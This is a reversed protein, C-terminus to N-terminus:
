IIIKQTEKNNENINDSLYSPDAFGELGLEKIEDLTLRKNNKDYVNYINLQDNWVFSYDGLTFHNGFFEMQTNTLYQQDKKKKEDKKFDNEKSHSFGISSNMSYDRHYNHINNHPNRFDRTNYSRYKEKFVKEKIEKQCEEVMLDLDNNDVMLVKVNDIELEIPQYINIRCKMEGSHNIVLSIYYDCAVHKGTKEDQFSWSAGMKAHSHWWFKLNSPNKGQKILDQMLKCQDETDLNCTASSVVQKLLFIESILFTNANKREVYGLGSIEDDLLKCYTILKYYVNRPIEVKFNIDVEAEKDDSLVSDVVIDKSLVKENPSIAELEYNEDKKNELSKGEFFELCNQLNKDVCKGKKNKRM